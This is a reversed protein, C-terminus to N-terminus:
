FSKRLGISAATTENATAAGNDYKEYGVYAAATKSFNYDARLGTVKGEVTGVKQNRMNAMLGIAGINHTIGINSGKSDVAVGGTGAGLRNGDNMGAHLTTAGMTYSASFVNASTKAAGAGAGLAYWGTGNTQAGQAVNAYALTLPGAAYRLGIETAQRANLIQQATTGAAPQDNGAAYLVAVQFGGMVPSDYRVSRSYRTQVFSNTMTGSRGAGTYGSGIGTGLPSSPQWANLGISNPSGLRINGFGGSLGVFLEDRSLGTTTNGTVSGATASNLTNGIGDNALTRPDFNYQATARMGGGLDEVAIFRLVSTTATGFGTTITTGKSAAQTGGVNVSAFDLNGSITATSQAFSATAALAALAILTKKM